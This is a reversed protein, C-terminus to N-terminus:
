RSLEIKRSEARELQRQAQEYQQKWAAYAAPNKEADPALLILSNLKQQYLEVAQEAQARDLRQIDASTAPIPGGLSVYLGMIATVAAAVAGAKLM